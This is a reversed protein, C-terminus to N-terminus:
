LCADIFSFSISDYLQRMCGNNEFLIALPNMVERLVSMCMKKEPFIIPLKKMEDFNGSLKREKMRKLRKVGNGAGTM